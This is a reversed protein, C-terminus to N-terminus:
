RGLAAPIPNRTEPMPFSFPDPLMDVRDKRKINPPKQCYSTLLTLMRGDVTQLRRVFLVKKGLVKQQWSIATSRACGAPGAKYAPNPHAIMNPEKGAPFGRM